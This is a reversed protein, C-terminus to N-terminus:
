ILSFTFAIFRVVPSLFTYAACTIDIIISEPRSLFWFFAWYTCLMIGLCITYLLVNSMFSRLKNM